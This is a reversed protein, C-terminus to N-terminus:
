RRRFTTTPLGRHCESDLRFQFFVPAPDGIDYVQRARHRIASRRLFRDCVGARERKPNKGISDLVRILLSGEDSERIPQVSQVAM